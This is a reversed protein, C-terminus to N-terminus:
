LLYRSPAVSISIQDAGTLRASTARGGMAVNRRGSPGGPGRNRRDRQLVAEEGEFLRDAVTDIQIRPEHGIHLEGPSM